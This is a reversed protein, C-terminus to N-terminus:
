IGVQFYNKWETFSARKMQERACAIEDKDEKSGNAGISPAKHKEASNIERNTGHTQANKINMQKNNNHKKTTTGMAAACKDNAHM